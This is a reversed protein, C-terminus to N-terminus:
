TASVPRRRSPREQSRSGTFCSPSIAYDEYMTTPSYEAESNQLTVLFADTRAEPAFLVGERFSNPKRGDISVYGLAAVIEERTYRAHVRLPRMGLEGTLRATVREARDLALRVVSRLDERM